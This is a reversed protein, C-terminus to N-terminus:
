SILGQNQGWTYYEDRIAEIDDTDFPGLAFGAAAYNAPPSSITGILQLFQFTSSDSQADVNVFGSGGDGKVGYFRDGDMLGVYYVAWGSGLNTEEYNYNNFFRADRTPDTDTDMTQIVNEEVSSGSDLLRMKRPGRDDIDNKLVAVFLWDTELTESGKDFRLNQNSVLTIHTSSDHPRVSATGQTANDGIRNVIEAVDPGTGLVIDASSEYRWDFLANTLEQLASSGGGGGSYYVYDIDNGQFFPEGSAKLKDNLSGTYSPDLTQYQCDNISFM